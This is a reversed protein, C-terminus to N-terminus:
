RGGPDVLQFWNGDPDSFTFCGPENEMPQLELGRAGLEALAAPLDDTYLVYGAAAQHYDPPSAPPKGPRLLIEVEGSKLWIFDGGQEVTVEFGLVDRYFRKSEQPSAVFLEIHGFKIGM